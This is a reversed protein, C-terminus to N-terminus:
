EFSPYRSIIWEAVDMITEKNPALVCKSAQGNDFPRPKGAFSCRAQQESKFRQMFIGESMKEFSWWWNTTKVITYEHLNAVWEPKWWLDYKRIESSLIIEEKAQLEKGFFVFLKDDSVQVWQKGNWFHLCKTWKGGIAGISSMPNTFGSSSSSGM